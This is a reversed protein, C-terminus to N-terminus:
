IWWVDVTWSMPVLVGPSSYGLSLMSTAAKPYLTVLQFLTGYSVSSCMGTIVIVPLIVYLENPFFPVCVAIVFLLIMPISLRVLFALVKGYRENIGRDFRAQMMQVLLAPACYATTFFLV